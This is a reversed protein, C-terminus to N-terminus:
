RSNSSHLGNNSILGDFSTEVLRPVQSLVLSKWSEQGVESTLKQFLTLWSEMKRRVVILM